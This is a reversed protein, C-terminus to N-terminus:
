VTNNLQEIKAPNIDLVVAEHNQAILM